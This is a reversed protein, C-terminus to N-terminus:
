CAVPCSCGGWVCVCLRVGAQLVLVVHAGYLATTICTSDVTVCCALSAALRMTAYVSGSHDAALQTGCQSASRLVSTSCATYRLFCSIPATELAHVRASSQQEGM